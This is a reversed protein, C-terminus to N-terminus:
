WHREAKRDSGGMWHHLFRHECKFDGIGKPRGTVAVAVVPVPCTPACHDGIGKPRGTVAVRRILLLQLARQHDGIGKPRGTVAVEFGRFLCEGCHSDGIGKPRGTVAVTVEFRTGQCAGQRAVQSRRGWLGVLGLWKAQWGRRLRQAGVMSRAQPVVGDGRRERRSLGHARRSPSAGLPGVRAGWGTGVLRM